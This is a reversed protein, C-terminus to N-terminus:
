MYMCKTSGYFPSCGRHHHQQNSIESIGRKHFKNTKLTYQFQLAACFSAPTPCEKSGKAAQISATHLYIVIGLTLDGETFVDFNWENTVCGDTFSLCCVGRSFSLLSLVPGLPTSVNFLTFNHTVQLRTFTTALAINGVSWQAAVSEVNGVNMNIQVVCSLLVGSHPAMYDADWSQPLCETVAVEPGTVVNHYHYIM